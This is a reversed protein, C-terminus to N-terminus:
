SVECVLKDRDRIKMICFLVEEPEHTSVSSWLIDWSTRRLSSPAVSAWRTEGIEWPLRYLRLYKSALGTSDLTAVRATLLTFRKKRGSQQHRHYGREGSM